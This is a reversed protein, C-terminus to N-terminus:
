CAMQHNCQNRFCNYTSNFKGDTKKKLAKEEATMPRKKPKKEQEPSDQYIKVQRKGEKANKSRGKNSGREQSTV